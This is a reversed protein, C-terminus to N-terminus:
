QCVRRGPRSMGPTCLAMGFRPLSPLCAGLSSTDADHRSVGDGAGGDFQVVLSEQDVRGLPRFLHGDLQCVTLVDIGEGLTVPLDDAEHALLVLGRAGAWSHPHKALIDPIGM